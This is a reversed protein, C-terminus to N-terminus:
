KIDNNLRNMKSTDENIIRRATCAKLAGLSVKIVDGTQPAHIYMNNGVYIAVHHPSSKDGFFILDGPQLKDISVEVETGVNVQTYTTRTIEYGFQRYVYSTFGSCDMGTKPNDGGWLYPIGLYKYAELVVANYSVPPTEGHGVLGSVKTKIEEISINIKDLIEQTKIKSKLGELASIIGNLEEISESSNALNILPEVMAIETDKISSQTKARIEILKKMTENSESKKADLEEQQNQQQIQLEEQETKNTEINEKLTEINQVNKKDTDALKAACDVRLLFDGLSSSKMIFDVYNMSTSKSKYIERIRSDMLKEADELKKSETELNKNIEDLDSQTKQMEITLISLDNDIKQIETELNLINAENENYQKDLEDHQNIQEDTVNPVAYAISNATFSTMLFCSTVIALKLRNNYM